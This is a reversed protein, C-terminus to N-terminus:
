VFLCLYVFLVFCLLDAGQESDRIDFAAAQTEAMGGSLGQKFVPNRALVARCVDFRAQGCTVVADPFARERWLFEGLSTDCTKRNKGGPHKM